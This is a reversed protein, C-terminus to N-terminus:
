VNTELDEGDVIGVVGHPINVKGVVFDKKMEKEDRPIKLPVGDGVAGNGNPSDDKEKKQPQATAEGEEEREKGHRFEKNVELFSPQQTSSLLRAWMRDTVSVKNTKETVRQWLCRVFFILEKM